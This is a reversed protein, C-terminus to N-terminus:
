DNNIFSRSCGTQSEGLFFIWRFLYIEHSLAKGNGNGYILISKLNLLADGKGKDKRSDFFRGILGLECIFRLEM